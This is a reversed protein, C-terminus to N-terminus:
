CIDYCRTYSFNGIHVAVVSFLYIFLYVFLYIFLLYIILICVSSSWGVSYLTNWVSCNKRDKSIFLIYLLIKLM